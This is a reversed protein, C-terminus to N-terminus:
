QNQLDLCRQWSINDMKLSEEATPIYEIVKASDFPKDWPVEFTIFGGRAVTKKESAIVEIEEGEAACTDTIKKILKAKYRVSDIIVSNPDGISIMRSCYGINFEPRKTTWAVSLQRIDGMGFYFSEKTHQEYRLNTTAGQTRYFCTLHNWVSDDYSQAKASSLFSLTLVSLVLLKM